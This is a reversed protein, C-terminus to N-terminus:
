LKRGDFIIEEEKVKLGKEFRQHASQSIFAMLMQPRDDDKNGLHHVIENPLLYRKIQNEIVIRARKIYGCSNAWPHNPKLLFIYGGSLKKGGKWNLNKEGKHAESKKKRIKKSDKYGKKFSGKNLKKLGKTGIHWPIHGKIFRGFKDRM